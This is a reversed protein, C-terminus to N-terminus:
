KKNLRDFNKGWSKDGKKKLLKKAKNVLMSYMEDCSDGWALDNVYASSQITELHIQNMSRLEQLNKFIEFRLTPDKKQLIEDIDKIATDIVDLSMYVAILLSYISLSDDERFGLKHLPVQEATNRVKDIYKEGFQEFKSEMLECKKLAEIFQGRQRLQYIEDALKIIAPQKAFANRIVQLSAKSINNKWDM